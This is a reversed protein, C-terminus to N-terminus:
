AACVAGNLTSHGDRRVRRAKYSDHWRQRHAAKVREKHVRISIGCFQCVGMIFSHRQAEPCGNLAPLRDGTVSKQNGIVTKMRNFILIWLRTCRRHEM